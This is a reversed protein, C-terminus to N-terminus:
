ISRAQPLNQHSARTFATILRRTGYFAPFNKVPESRLFSEAARLFYNLLYTPMVLFSTIDAFIIYLIELFFIQLYKLVVRFYFSRVYTILSVLVVVKALIAQSNLFQKSFLLLPVPISVTHHAQSLSLKAAPQARTTAHIREEKASRM